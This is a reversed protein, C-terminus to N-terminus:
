DFLIDWYDYDLIRSSVTFRNSVENSIRQIYEDPIPDGTKSIVNGTRANYMADETIWSRDSFIVLPDAESFIDRGMYLRSDFELGFLNSLTPLLDLHSCPETITEPTMGPKYIICGNQYIEFDTNVEHGLLESIQKATLGNPYHDATMVIVTNDLTGAEELKELLLTLAKELELQCSLYARVNNSYPEDKVLDKNRRAMVNGDFTFERHGSITMYYATFPEKAVFDDVSLQMVELDSEPWTKKVPLGKGYARYKYGLNQLYDDRNYYDYTHGHYAYAGYGKAILQQAMTLPMANDSSESFSWCNAKPITGTLFAYEGDTTSTGWDPVYFDTFYFGEHMLKYMTPTRVEDVILHSWAEATILILNCGEFLGTKENKYSPTRNAFYQHMQQIKMDATTEVLLNFDIDLTNPFSTIPPETPPETEIEPETEEPLTAETPPQTEPVDLHISGSVEAGTILRQVDLRFATAFGLKNISYFPDSNSHYLEYPSMAGTGEWLALSLILAVHLAVAMAAPLIGWARSRRFQFTINKRGWVLYFLLPIAMLIILPLANLLQSLLTYWFQFAETGNVMSFASFFFGFIRYYILQATCFLFSIVTLIVAATKSFWHVNVIRILAYVLLAIVFAFGPGLFLGSNLISNVSDSTALHLTLEPIAASLWLYLLLPFGCRHAQNTFKGGM